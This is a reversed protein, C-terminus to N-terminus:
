EPALWGGGYLLGPGLSALFIPFRSPTTGTRFAELASHLAAACTTSGLNGRIAAVPPFRELSVRSKKALLAVLRPNPQHTAFAAVETRPIGSVRELESICQDLRATAARSLADGDFVVRLRDGPEASVQIAAQLQSACGFFFERLSFSDEAPGPPRCQVLFASAGDGFLGGFEGVVREPILARSHVDATVVLVARSQGSEVFSKAVALAHLLGLCAGGVDLAGCKEHAGIALHMQAAFSPFAHHTESAAIIWDIANASVGSDELVERAAKAALTVESENAEAHALSIIGARHRLKGTPMGFAADVEESPITRSGFAVGSFRLLASSPRTSM